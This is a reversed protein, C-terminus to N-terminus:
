KKNEECNVCYRTTPVALLRRVPIDADCENCKGGDERDIWELNSELEKLEKNAAKLLVTDVEARNLSNMREIEDHEDYHDTNASESDLIIHLRQIRKQITEKLIQKQSNEM